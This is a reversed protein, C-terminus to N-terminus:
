NEWACISVSMSSFLLSFPITLFRSLYCVKSFFALAHFFCYQVKLTATHTVIQDKGSYAISSFVGSSESFTNFSKMSSDRFSDLIVTFSIVNWRTCRRGELSGLFGGGIIAFNSILM